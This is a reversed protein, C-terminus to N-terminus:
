CKGMFVYSKSIDSETNVTRLAQWDSWDGVGVIYGHPYRKSTKCLSRLSPYDNKVGTWILTSYPIQEPLCFMQFPPPLSSPNAMTVWTSFESVTKKTNIIIKWTYIHSNASNWDFNMLVFPFYFCNCVRYM